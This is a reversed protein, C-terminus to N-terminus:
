PSSMNTGDVKVNMNWIAIHRTALAAIIIDQVWIPNPHPIISPPFCTLINEFCINSFKFGSLIQYFNDRKGKQFLKLIFYQLIAFFLKHLLCSRFCKTLIKLNKLLFFAINMRKSFYLVFELFMGEGSVQFFISVIM